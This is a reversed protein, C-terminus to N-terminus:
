AGSAEDQHRIDGEICNLEVENKDAQKKLLNDAKDAQDEKEMLRSM